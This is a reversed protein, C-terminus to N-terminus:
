RKDNPRDADEANAVGRIGAYWGDRAIQATKSTTHWWDWGGMSGILTAAAVGGFLRSVIVEGNSSRCPNGARADM